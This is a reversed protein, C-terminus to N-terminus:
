CFAVFICFFTASFVSCFPCKNVTHSNFSSPLANGQEVQAPFTHMPPISNEKSQVHECIVVFTGHINIKPNGIVKLLDTFKFIYFIYIILISQM